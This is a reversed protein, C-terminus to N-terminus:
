QLNHGGFAKSDVYTQDLYRENWVWCSDDVLTNENQVPIAKLFVSVAKLPALPKGWAEADSNPCPVLDSSNLFRSAFDAM